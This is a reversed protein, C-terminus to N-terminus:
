SNSSISFIQNRFKAPSIKTYKKFYKIFNTSEDFGTHESISKVTDNSSLLCRKAELIIFDDIFQKATKKILKKCINNLHKYSINLEQACVKANRTKHFNTEIYNKFKFFINCYETNSCNLLEDKKIRESNLLLLNLLAQIIKNSTNKNNFEQFIRDTITTFYEQEKAVLQVSPKNFHFNFIWSQNLGENIKISEKLYNESFTIMYGSNGPKFDFSQVQNKAIFMFSGTSFNYKKFDIIHQGIGTTIIFIKYYQIRHTKQYDFKKQLHNENINKLTEINFYIESAKKVENKSDM